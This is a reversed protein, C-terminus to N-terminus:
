RNRASLLVPVEAQLKGDKLGISPIKFCKQGSLRVNIISVKPVILLIGDELKSLCKFM